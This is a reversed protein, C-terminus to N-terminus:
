DNIAKNAYTKVKDADCEVDVSRVDLGTSRCVLGSDGYVCEDCNRCTRPLRGDRIDIAIRERWDLTKYSMNRPARRM